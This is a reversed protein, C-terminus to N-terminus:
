VPPKMVRNLFQCLLEIAVDDPVENRKLEHYFVSILRSVTGTWAEMQEAEALFKKQQKDWDM